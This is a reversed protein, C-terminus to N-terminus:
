RYYSWGDALESLPTIHIAHAATTQFLIAAKARAAIVSPASVVGVNNLEAMGGSSYYVALFLRDVPRPSDGPSGLDPPPRDDSRVDEELVLAVRDGEEFGARLFIASRLSGDPDGQGHGIPITGATRERESHWEKSIVLDRVIKMGERGKAMPPPAVPPLIQWTPIEMPIRVREIVQEPTLWVDQGSDEFRVLLSYGEVGFVRARHWVEGLQVDGGQLMGPFSASYGRVGVLDNAKLQLIQERTM